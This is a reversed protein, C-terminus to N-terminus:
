FKYLGQLAFETQKDTASGDFATFFKDAAATKGSSMDQRVEFRIESSASPAFGVTLTVEKIKEDPLGTVLGGNSDDKIQEVRLSMRWQDNFAVNGYLAFGDSKHTGAASFEKVRKNDYNAVFTLADTPKWTVVADILTTGGQAGNASENGFYGTLAFSIVPSPTVVIGAEYTKQTNQMTTDFSTNWGNNVGFSFSVVDNAAITARIGTHTLPELNTFLLSRSFNSNGTPAIVEAGALTVYKGAILTFPGAAYQLYAQTVNFSGSTGEAFNLIQADQGAIVNVLAGFGDKPQFALTLAAQDLSFTNHDLDFQHLYGADTSLHYYSSAVYGTATIGSSELVESLKPAAAHAIGCAAVLGLATGLASAIRVNKKM